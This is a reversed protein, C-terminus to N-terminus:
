KGDGMLYGLLASSTKARAASADDESGEEPPIFQMSCAGLDEFAPSRDVCSNFGLATRTYHGSSDEGNIAGVYFYILRMLSEISGTQDLSTSLKALNEGVPELSTGLKNIQQADKLLAPFTNRGQDAVKGLSTLTPTGQKLAPGLLETAENVSAAESAFGDIAASAQDSFAGLRDTAPGLEKLFAPLKAFNAELADGHRATATGADGANKIFKGIDTRRDSLSALIEDSDDTLKGLMKDQSALTAVLEDAKQLVPSARKIAQNLEEGNGSVGAGLENLILPLRQRQPVRMINQLLDVGVPSSTQGLPLPHQGAGPDGDKITTLEPALAKGAGREKTPDCEVFQEGILSQLGVRCTADKRFPKFAPDDIRLVVVARNQADVDLADISGVVVGAVKVDEGPIIFSANDFTARVLYKGKGDGDGGAGLAAGVCVAAVFVAVSIVIRRRLTASM